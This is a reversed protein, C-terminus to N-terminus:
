ARKEPPWPRASDAKAWKEVWEPIPPNWGEVGTAALVNTPPVIKGRSTIVTRCMVNAAPEGSAYLTHEIFFFRQDHAVLTSHFALKEWMTVRRRYHPASGAMALGWRNTRMARILGTRQALGIRGVDSLTIIRGNNLDGFPDIDWPLARMHNVHTEGPALPSLKRCRLSEIIQRRVPYM